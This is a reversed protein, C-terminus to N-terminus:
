GITLWPLLLAAAVCWHSMSCPSVEVVRKCRECWGQKDPNNYFVPQHCDSCFMNAEECHVDAAPRDSALRALPLQM